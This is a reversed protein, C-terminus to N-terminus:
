ESGPQRIVYEMLSARRMRSAVADYRRDAQVFVIWGKGRERGGDGNMAKRM